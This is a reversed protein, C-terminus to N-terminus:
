DELCADIFRQCDFKSNTAKLGTAFQEAVQRRKMGEFGKNIIGAIVAFHRHQLIDKAGANIQDKHLATAPKLM